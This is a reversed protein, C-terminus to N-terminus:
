RSHNTKLAGKYLSCILRECDISLFFKNTKFSHIETRMKQLMRKVDLETNYARTEMEGFDRLM